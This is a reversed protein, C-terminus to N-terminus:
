PYVQETRGGLKAPKLNSTDRLRQDIKRFTQVPYLEIPIDKPTYVERQQAIATRRAAVFTCTQKRCIYVNQLLYPSIFLSRHLTNSYRTCCEGPASCVSYM